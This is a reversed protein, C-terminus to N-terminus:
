CLFGGRRYLESTCLPKKEKIECRTTTGRLMTEPSRALLAQRAESGRFGSDLQTKPRHTKRSVAPQPGSAVVLEETLTFSQGSVLRQAGNRSMRYLSVACAPLLTITPAYEYSCYQQGLVAYSYSCVSGAVPEAPKLNRGPGAARRRHWHFAALLCLSALALSGFVSGLILALSPSSSSSPDTLPSFQTPELRLPTTQPPVTAHELVQVAM